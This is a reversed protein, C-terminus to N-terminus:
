KGGGNEEEKCIVTQFDVPLDKVIRDFHEIINAVINLTQMRFCLRQNFRHVCVEGVSENFFVSAIREEGKYLNVCHNDSQEGHGKWNFLRHEIRYDGNLMGGTPIQIEEIGNESLYSTTM